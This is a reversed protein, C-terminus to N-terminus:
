GIGCSHKPKSGFGGPGLACMPLGVSACYSSLACSFSWTFWVKSIVESRENTLGGRPDLLDLIWLLWKGPNPFPGKVFGEWLPILRSVGDEPYRGLVLRRAWTWVGAFGPFVWGWSWSYRGGKAMYKCLYGAVGRKGRYAKQVYVVPAGHLKNWLKSLWEQDVYSGVYLVHLHPLGSQTFELVKIYHLLIGLRQLRGKLRRWSIAIDPSQPTSTLTIFRLHTLGHRVVGSVTRHFCRARARRQNREDETECDVDRVSGFALDRM